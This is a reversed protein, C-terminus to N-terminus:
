SLLTTKMESNDIWLQLESKAWGCSYHQVSKDVEKAIKNTKM